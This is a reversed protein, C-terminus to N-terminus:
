KYTVLNNEQTINCRFFPSNGLSIGLCVEQTVEIIVVLIVVIILVIKDGLIADRFNM